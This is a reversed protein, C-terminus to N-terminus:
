IKIIQTTKGDRVNLYLDGEYGERLTLIVFDRDPSNMLRDYDFKTIGITTKDKKVASKRVDLFIHCFNEVKKKFGPDELLNHIPKAYPSFRENPKYTLTAGRLELKGLHIGNTNIIYPSSKASILIEPLSLGLDKKFNEILEKEEM